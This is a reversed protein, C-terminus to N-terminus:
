PVGAAHSALNRLRDALRHTLAVITLTPNVYSGTPFVSSGAVHLNAIGHVQANADVVGRTPDDHMRTTGMHHRGGDMSPPWGNERLSWDDIMKGQDSEHLLRALTRRLHDLGRRDSDSVRWDVTARPQGLREVTSDLSVRSDRQPTTEVVTRLAMVRRPRVIEVARKAYTRLVAPAGGIMQVVDRGVDVDDVTRFRWADRLRNRARNGSFHYDPTTESLLRRIFYAVAGSAAERRQAAESLTVGSHWTQEWGVRKFTRIVHNGDALQPSAPLFYGTTLYPHDMFYRGVLDHGNGVGAEAVSRSALMLRPNEIGGAALVYHRAKFTLRRGELTRAEIGTVSRAADCLRIEVANAHLHVRVAASGALRDRYARGFDTPHGFEFRVMRLDDHSLRFSGEPLREPDDPDFDTLHCTRAARAYYPLLVDRDFPWGSDPIWDRRAFDLREMMRCQAAWRTTSGGWMRVRSQSLPYNDLGTNRGAHLRQVAPDFTEGGSEIIALTLGSDMLDLALTIGAAGGGVICLDTEITEAADGQRSDIITM